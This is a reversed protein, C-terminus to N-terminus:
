YNLTRRESEETRRILNDQYDKPLEVFYASFGWVRVVLDRYGEPRLQADRLVKSSVVNIQVQYVGEDLGGKILAIVNERNDFLKPSLIVDVVNANIRNEGYSLNAAFRLVEVPSTGQKGSIHTDFPEGEKRGDLTAPFKKAEIIYRPSSLGFKYKGGYRNTHKAIYPTIFTFIENTLNIVETVDTGYRITASQLEQRLNECNKFNNKCIAVLESSKYTKEEFVLNKINLLTNVATSMGVATVGLNIQSGGGSVDKGQLLCPECFVSVYPDTEFKKYDLENIIADVYTALSVKYKELLEEYSLNDINPDGMVSLLPTAFNISGINNQEIVGNIIMPEWCASTIYGYAQEESFGFEVLCPIVIDDNSLVPCGIGTALCEVAANMLQSPMKKSARLLIKPDPFRLEKVCEILLYTLENCHYNGESSLGGVIIIQGIDGPLNASKAWYFEHLVCLFEKIYQKIQEKNTGREIEEKYKKELIWDLHGLGNDFHGTQWMWQNVFLIRQLAEHFGNAPRFFLSKIEEICSAYKESVVRTKELRDIYRKLGCIVGFIDREFESVCCEESKIGIYSNVVKSYDITMNDLIRNRTKPIVFEDISYFFEDSKTPNIRVTRSLVKFQKGKRRYCPIIKIKEKNKAFFCQKSIPTVQSYRKYLDLFWLYYDVGPLRKIKQKLSVINM